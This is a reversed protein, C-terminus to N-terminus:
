EPSTDFSKKVDALSVPAHINSKIFFPPYSYLPWLGLM